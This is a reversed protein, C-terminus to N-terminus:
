PKAKKLRQKRAACVDCGAVDPADAHASGEAWTRWALPPEFGGRWIGRGARMAAEQERRYPSPILAGALAWGQAIMWANLVVDSECIVQPPDGSPRAVPVCRVAVTGVRQRLAQAAAKGCAWAEGDAFCLQELAPASVGHLRVTEHGLRLTDGDIVSVMDQGAAAVGWATAGALVIVRSLVSRM